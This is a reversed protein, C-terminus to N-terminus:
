SHSSNTPQAQLGLYFTLLHNKFYIDIDHGYSLHRVM